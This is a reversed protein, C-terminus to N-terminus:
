ETRGMRKALHLTQKITNLKKSHRLRLKSELTVINKIQLDQKLIIVYPFFQSMKSDTIKAFTSDNAFRQGFRKSLRLKQCSSVVEVVDM